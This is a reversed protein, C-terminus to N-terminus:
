SFEAHRFVLKGDLQAIPIEVLSEPPEPPQHSAIQVPTLFQDRSQRIGELQRGTCDVPGNLRCPVLLFPVPDLSVLFTLPCPTLRESWVRYDQGFSGHGRLDRDTRERLTIPKPANLNVM